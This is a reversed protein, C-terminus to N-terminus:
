RSTSSSIRYGHGGTLVKLLSIATRDVFSSDQL